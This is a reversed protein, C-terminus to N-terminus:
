IGACRAVCTEVLRAGKVGAVAEKIHARTNHRQLALMAEVQAEEYTACRKSREIGAQVFYYHLKNQMYTNYRIHALGDVVIKWGRDITFRKYLQLFDNVFANETSYYVCAFM